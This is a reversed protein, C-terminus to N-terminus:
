AYFIYQCYLKFLPPANAECYFSPIQQARAPVKTYFQVPKWQDMVCFAGLDLQFSKVIVKGDNKDQLKVLDNDCCSKHNDDTVSCCAKKHGHKHENHQHHENIPEVAKYALSVSSVEGM